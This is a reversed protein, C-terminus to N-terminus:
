RLEVEERDEGASPAGARVSLRGNGRGVVIWSVEVESGGGALAELLQVKRGGAIEQGGTELDVRIARPRRLREALEPRTPLLGSNAIRATIRWAGDSLSEAEAEVIEIRPLLLGLEVLFGVERALISDRESEPPMYATYPLFGGVEVKRNPFDPHEIPTWDIFDAPRNARLWRLRRREAAALDKEGAGLGSSDPDTAASDSEVEGPPTWVSSGFAWRGMHFYAWELPGGGPAATGLTDGETRGTAERYRSSIEAFWPADAEMVSALPEEIRRDTESNSGGSAPKWKWPSLLNDRTGLVVVAVIEDHADLYEALSRSEPASLPYDGAAPEFWPYGRPFNSAVDVGGPPDENFRGDEDDDRGEEMLRWGPREGRAPVAHRMLGPDDPDETWEGSPDAVRMMTIWGDGNLDDPGDEDVLGDLDDDRPDDNRAIEGTPRRTAGAAADPSLTPVVHVTVRDLLLTVLSDTGYGEAL